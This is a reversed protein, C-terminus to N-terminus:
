GAITHTFQIGDYNPGSTAGRTPLIMSSLKAETGHAEPLPEGQAFCLGRRYNIQIGSGPMSPGRSDGPFGGDAYKVVNASVLM